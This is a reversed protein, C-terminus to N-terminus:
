VNFPLWHIWNGYVSSNKEEISERQRQWAHFHAFVCAASEQSSLWCYKHKKRTNKLNTKKELGRTTTSNTARLHNYNEASTTGELSSHCQASQCCKAKLPRRAAAKANIWKCAQWYNTCCSKKGSFYRFFFYFPLHLVQYQFLKLFFICYRYSYKCAGCIPAAFATM